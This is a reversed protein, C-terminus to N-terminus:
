SGHYGDPPFVKMWMKGDEHLLQFYGNAAM